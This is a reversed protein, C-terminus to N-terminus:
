EINMTKLYRMMVEKENETFTIGKKSAKNIMAPITQYFTKETFHKPNKAKHCLTCKEEYVKKGEQLQALTLDPYIAKGKELNTETPIDLAASCALLFLSAAMTVIVNKTKM